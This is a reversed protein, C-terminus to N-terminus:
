FIHVTYDKISNNKMLTSVSRNAVVAAVPRM